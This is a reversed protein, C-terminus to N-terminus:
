THRSIVLPSKGKFKGALVRYANRKEGMCTVDGVWRMRKSKMSYYKSLLALGYLEETYLKELM